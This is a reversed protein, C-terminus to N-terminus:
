NAFRLLPVNEKELLQIAENIQEEFCLTYQNEADKNESFLIIHTPKEHLKSRRGPRLLDRIKKLLTKEMM